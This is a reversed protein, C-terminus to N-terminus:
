RTLRRVGAVVLLLLFVGQVAFLSVQDDSNEDASDNNPATVDDASDDNPAIVDDDSEDTDTTGSGDSGNTESGGTDGDTTNDTASSSDDDSSSNESETSTEGDSSANDAGDAADDNDGTSTDTEGTTDSSGDSESGTDGDPDSGDTDDGSTPEQITLSSSELALIEQQGRFTENGLAAVNVTYEGTAFQDLAISTTYAEGDAHSMEFTQSHSENWVVVEVGAPASSLATPTVDATIEVEEDRTPNEPHDVAVDYGAIVVPQIQETTGELEVSLMYTGPAYSETEFTVSETTGPDFIRESDEFQKDSNYLLFAVDTFEEDPLTVKATIEDGPDRVTTSDIKYSEGQVAVTETPTLTSDDVTLTVHSDASGAIAGSALLITVALVCLLLYRRFRIWSTAM